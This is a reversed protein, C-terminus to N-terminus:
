MGSRIRGPPNRRRIGDLDVLQCMSDMIDAIIAAQEDTPNVITLQRFEQSDATVEEPKSYRVSVPGFNPAFDIGDLHYPLAIQDEGPM